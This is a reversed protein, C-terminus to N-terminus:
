ETISEIKTLQADAWLKELQYFGRSEPNFVHVLVNFYDVICWTANDTGEISKPLIGLKKKVEFAISDVITDSQPKSSASCIIFKDFLSNQLSHLDMVVIDIGKKDQITEIIVEALGKNTTNEIEKKSKKEIKKAM